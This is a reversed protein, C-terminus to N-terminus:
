QASLKSAFDFYERAKAVANAYEEASSAYAGLGLQYDRESRSDFHYPSEIEIECSSDGSSEPLRLTITASELGSPTEKVCTYVTTYDLCQKRFLPLAVDIESEIKESVKVKM